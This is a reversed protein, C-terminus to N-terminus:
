VCSPYRSGGSNSWSSWTGGATCTQYTNIQIISGGFGSELRSGSRCQYGVSYRNTTGWRCTVSPEPVDECVVTGTQSIIRIAQGVPCTGTVRSQVQSTSASITGSTTIVSPSLTIGFGSTLMSIGGSPPILASVCNLGNADCYRNSRMQDTATFIPASLPGNKIQGIPLQTIPVPVIGTPPTSTSPLWAGAVSMAGSFFLLSFYFLSHVTYRKPQM